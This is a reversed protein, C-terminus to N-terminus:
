IRRHCRTSGSARACAILFGGMIFLPTLLLLGIGILAKLIDSTTQLKSKQVQKQSEKTQQRKKEELLEIQMKLKKIQLDEKTETKPMKSNLIKRELNNM